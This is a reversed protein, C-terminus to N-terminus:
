HSSVLKLWPTVPRMQLGYRWTLENCAMMKLVELVLEGEVLNDAIQQDCHDRPQLQLNYPLVAHWFEEYSMPEFYEEADEQYEFKKM